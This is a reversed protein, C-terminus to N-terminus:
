KIKSLTTALRDALIELVLPHGGLLETRAVQAFAGREVLAEGIQSVDGGDGAHRGPLLFFMAALLVGDHMEPLADLNELLPENFAFEPGERREMSAAVVPRGLLTSIQAAVSNRLTNVEPAPTGHDVLAVQMTGEPDVSYVRDALMAALRSDPKSVSEGALPDAITATFDGSELKLEKLVEPLYDSLARSPGLFLPLLIFHRHGAALDERMQRKVITAPIGQLAETSIKHSHLLSVAKVKQHVLSGLASALERLQFTATPALSGNDVLYIQTELDPLNTDISM